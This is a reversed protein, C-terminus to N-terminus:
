KNLEPGAKINGSSDVALVGSEFLYNVAFRAGRKEGKYYGMFFLILGIGAAILGQMTSIDM